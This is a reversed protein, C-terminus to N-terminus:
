VHQTYVLATVVYRPRKSTPDPIWIDSTVNAGHGIVVGDLMSGQLNHLLKLLPQKLALASAKIPHGNGDESITGWCDFQVLANDISSDGDGHNGGIRKLTYCPFTKKETAGDPVDNFVRTGVLATISVQSKLWTRLAGETDPWEDDSM